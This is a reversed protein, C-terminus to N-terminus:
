LERAIVMQGVTRHQIASSIIIYCTESTISSITRQNQTETKANVSQTGEIRITRPRRRDTPRHDNASYQLAVHRLATIEKWSM